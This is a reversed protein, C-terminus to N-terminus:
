CTDRIYSKTIKLMYGQYLERYDKVHKGSVVRQLGQSTDRICSKTIRLIYGQYLERHDKVHM